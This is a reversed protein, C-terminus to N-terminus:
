FSVRIGFQFIGPNLIRQTEGADQSSLYPNVKLSVANNTINYGNLLLTVDFPSALTFTKELGLNLVWLAPLRDDGFKKGPEYIRTWGILPRYLMRYYPIVYGERAQFVGSFNIGFPLQVLTAIKFQWRSNVFMETLGSGGSQPAVVGGDYYDFNTKDFYEAPDYYQKWDSVTFSAALM